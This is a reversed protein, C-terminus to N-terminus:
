ARGDHDRCVTATREAVGDCCPECLIQGNGANRVCTACLAKGCNQCYATAGVGQHNVCDM